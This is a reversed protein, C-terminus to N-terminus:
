KVGTDAATQAGMEKCVLAANMRVNEDTDNLLRRLLPLAAQCQQPFRTHFSGLSNAAEGRVSGFRNTLGKTFCPIADAGTGSAAIMAFLATTGDQADMLSELQPLAPKAQEGLMILGRVAEMNIQSRPNVRSPPLNFPPERYSLRKLLAPIANTGMEQLASKANESLRGERDYMKLWEGLPKGEYSPENPFQSEIPHQKEHQETIYRQAYRSVHPDLDNTAQQIASQIAPTEFPYKCLLALSARRTRPDASRFNELVLPLAEEPAIAVWSQLAQRAAATSHGNVVANSLAPLAKLSNTGFDGLFKAAWSATNDDQDNLAKILLPIAADAANTQAGIEQVAAFRVSADSDNLSNKMRAFFADNDDTVWALQQTAFYRVQPNRNTLAQSMSTEAPKGVYVLCRVAVFAHDKDDLLRTLEGVAPAANTELAEFGAIGLQQLDKASRWKLFDLRLDESKVIVWTSVPDEKTEVLRLLRPLTEDLPM